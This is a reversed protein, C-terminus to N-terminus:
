FAIGLVSALEELSLAGEGPVEMLYLLGKIQLENEESLKLGMAMMVNDLLVRQDKYEHGDVVAERQAFCGSTKRFPFWPLAPDLNPRGTGHIRLDVRGIDRALAAQRWWNAGHTSAPLLQEMVPEPLQWGTKTQIFEAQNPIWNLIVRRYKGFLEPFNAEPMVSDMSQIGMPTQGDRQEAPLGKASAALGLGHWIQGDEGRHLEGDPRKILIHCPFDRNSRCFVYLRVANAYQGQQYSNLDANFDFVERVEQQSLVTKQTSIKYQEYVQPFNKMLKVYVNGIESNKEKEYFSYYLYIEELKIADLKRKSKQKLLRAELGKLYGHDLYNQDVFKRIVYFYRLQIEPLVGPMPHELYAIYKNQPGEDEVLDWLADIWARQDEKTWDQDVNKFNTPSVLEWQILKKFDNYAMYYDKKVQGGPVGSSAQSSYLSLLVILAWMIKLMRM